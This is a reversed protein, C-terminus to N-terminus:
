DIVVEGDLVYRRPDVARKDVHVEYHLHPATSKGSSGVRAIVQGRRVRDGKEVKTDLVHAYLTQIGNGHDIKVTMGFNGNKKAFTVTGDATAVIPTGRRAAYDLGRHFARRRTFPDLRRGFGSTIRGEDVPRISPIHAWHDQRQEFSELVQLLSHRQLDSQRLLADTSNRVRTVSQALEGDLGYLPDRSSFDPGGVGMLRVEEDIPDLDALLRMRTELLNAEHVHAALRDVDGELSALRARLLANEEALQGKGGADLGVGGLYIALTIVGVIAVAVISAALAWGRHLRLTRVGNGTDPVLMITM